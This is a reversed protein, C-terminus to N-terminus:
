ILTSLLQLLILIGNHFTHITTSVFINKSKDYIYAFIFGPICYSIIYLLDFLDKMSFIVHMLGFFLGSSIIFVWRNKFIKRFTKRFVIEEELPGLIVASIILYIPFKDLISRVAEENTAITEKHNCLKQILLILFNSAYMLAILLVWYKFYEDIYKKWNKKFDQWDNINDKKYIMFITFLFLSEAVLLYIIKYINALKLVNIGILYLPILLLDSYFLYLFIVLLAIAVEKKHNQM